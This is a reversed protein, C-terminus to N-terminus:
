AGLPQQRRLFQQGALVDPIPGATLRDRPRPRHGRPSAAWALGAVAVLCLPRASLFAPTLKIRRGPRRVQPAPKM